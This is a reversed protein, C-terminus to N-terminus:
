KILDLNPNITEALPPLQQQQEQEQEEQKDDNEKEEAAEESQIDNGLNASDNM